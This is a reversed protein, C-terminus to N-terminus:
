DDHKEPRQWHTPVLQTGNADRWAADQWVAYIPYYGGNRSLIVTGDRPATEIPEWGPLGIESELPKHPTQTM